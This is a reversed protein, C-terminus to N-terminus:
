HSNRRLFTRAANRARERPVHFKRCLKDTAYELNVCVVKDNISIIHLYARMESSKPRRARKWNKTM